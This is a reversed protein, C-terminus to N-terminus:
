EQGEEHQARNRGLHIAAVLGLLLLLSVIEVSLWYHEFVFRGFEKPTVMAVNLPSSGSPDSFVAVCVSSFFLGGALLGPGWFRRRYPDEGAEIRLMMIIFLFLVMIAGAYVIVQLAALFPSGMLYFLMASGLFSIVLFVVSHVARRRTVALVTAFAILGATAYFMLSYVNM